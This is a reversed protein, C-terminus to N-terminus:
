AHQLTRHQPHIATVAGFNVDNSQPNATAERDMERIKDLLRQKSQDRMKVFDPTQHDTRRFSTILGLPPNPTKM